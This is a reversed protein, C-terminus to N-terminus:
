GEKTWVTRAESLTRGVASPASAKLITWFREVREYLRQEGAADAVYPTCGPLFSSSHLFLNLFTGGAALVPRACHWMQSASCLEPSLHLRRLLRTHWLIATPRLARLAPRSVLDHVRYALPFNARNFASTAPFEIIERQTGEALLDGFEPWYPRIPANIYSFSTSTYYPLVSSDTEYGHDRLLMLLEGTMGWRGARFTRPRTGFREELIRTLNRLKRAVLARPLNVIHSNEECIAEEFPPNCWPHLHAGIECRGSEIAPALLQATNPDCAVAYDVMYTPKLGIRDCLAQFKSLRQVNRTSFPATPFPGSWDWEEETDVTVVLTLPRPHGSRASIATM